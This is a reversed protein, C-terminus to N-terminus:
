LKIACCFFSYDINWIVLIKLFSSIIKSDSDIVLLGLFTCGFNCFGLDWNLMSFIINGGTAGFYVLHLSFIGESHSFLITM